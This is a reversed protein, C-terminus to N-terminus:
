KKLQWNFFFYYVWVYHKRLLLLFAVVDGDWARELEWISNQTWLSQGNRGTDAAYLTVLPHFHYHLDIPTFKMQSGCARQGHRKKECVTIHSIKILKHHTWIIPLPMNEVNSIAASLLEIYVNLTWVIHQLKHTVTELFALLRAQGYCWSRPCHWHSFDRAWDIARPSWKCLYRTHKHSHRVDCLVVKRLTVNHRNPSPPLPAWTSPFVACGCLFSGNSM